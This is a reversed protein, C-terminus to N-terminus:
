RSRRARRRIGPTGAMARAQVGVPPLSPSPARARASRASASAPGSCSAILRTSASSRAASAAPVAVGATAVGTAGGSGGGGSPRAAAGAQAAAGPAPAVRRLPSRAGSRASVASSSASCRCGAPWGAAPRRWPRPASSPPASPRGLGGRLAAQAEAPLTALLGPGTQVLRAFHAAVTADGAALTGFLLAGLVATAVAAGLTRSFQVSAAAAGLRGPGGAVQVTIQVVPYSCGFGVAVVGFLGAVGWDPLGGALLAIAALAAAALALGFTAFPMGIGTRTMLWGSSLGGIAGGLSLPLLLVGAQVASAGRVSQLYIPLFTLLAILAGHACATMLNSRLVTPEALLPLPLLPDRVRREQRLLLVLSLAAVAALGAAAPLASLRLKQVQSLAMLAPAVFGAFLLM